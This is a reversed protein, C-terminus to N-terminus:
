GLEQFKQLLKDAFSEASVNYTGDQVRSKVSNVLDARVDPSAKLADKATKMDKGISSISVKDTGVIGTKPKETKSVKSTQYLSQIQSYSEIRM